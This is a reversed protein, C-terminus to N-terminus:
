EIHLGFVTQCTLETSKATVSSSYLLTTLYETVATCAILLVKCLLRLKGACRLKIEGSCIQLRVILRAVLRNSDSIFILLLWLPNDIRLQTLTSM